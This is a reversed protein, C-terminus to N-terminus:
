SCIFSALSHLCSHYNTSSQTSEKRTSDKRTLTKLDGNQLFVVSRATSKLVKSAKSHFEIRTHMDDTPHARSTIDITDTLIEANCVLHLQTVNVIITRVTEVKSLVLRGIMYLFTLLTKNTRQSFMERFFPCIKFCVHISYVTQRIFGVEKIQTRGIIDERNM